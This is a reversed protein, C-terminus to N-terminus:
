NDDGEPLDYEPIMGLLRIGLKNEVDKANKIDRDLFEVALIFGAGLIGGLLVGIIMYLVRNPGSPEEPTVATDLVEVNELSEFEVTLEKVLTVLENAIASSESANTGTVSLNVILTNSTNSVSIMSKLTTISYPLDLNSKLENLVRDSEVVVIYTDVLKQGTVLDQYDSSNENSVQVIMSSKSTYEDEKMGYAYTATVGVCLIVAIAIQWWKRLLLHLLALLDIEVEKNFDENM